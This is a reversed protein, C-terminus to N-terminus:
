DFMIPSSSLHRWTVSGTVTKKFHWGLRDSRSCGSSCTSSTNLASQTHRKLAHCCASLGVVWCEASSCRSTWWLYSWCLWAALSCSCPVWWGVLPGSCLQLCAVIYHYRVEWWSPWDQAPIVAKGHKDKLPQFPWQDVLRWLLWLSLPQTYVDCSTLDNTQLGGCESSVSIAM